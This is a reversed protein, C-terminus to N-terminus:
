RPRLLPDAAEGLAAAALMEGLSPAHKFLNHGAFALVGGREWLGFADGGAGRLTTTLRLVGDVPQPGLGPFAARVYATLRARAPRLDAGGPVTQATEDDVRPYDPVTLGIAYRGPGEPTGYAGEGYRGSRDAWVAAPGPAPASVAFTLRLHAHRDRAIAIGLPAVLRETGAGACVVCRECEIRGASTRLAVTGGAASAIRASRRRTPGASRRARTSAIAGAAPPM